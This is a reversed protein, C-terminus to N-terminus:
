YAVPGLCCPTHGTLDVNRRSDDPSPCSCAHTRGPRLAQCCLPAAQLLGPAGQDGPEGSGGQAWRTGGAADQGCLKGCQEACHLPLQGHGGPQCPSNAAPRRPPGADKNRPTALSFSPTSAPAPPGWPLPPPLQHQETPWTGFSQCPGLPQTVSGTLLRAQLGAERGGQVATSVGLLLLSVDPTCLGGPHVPACLSCRGLRRAWRVQWPTSGKRRGPSRPGPSAQPRM